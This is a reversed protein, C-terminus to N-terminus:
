DRDIGVRGVEEVRTLLISVLEHDRDDLGDIPLRLRGRDILGGVPEGLQDLGSISRIRAVSRSELGLEITARSPGRKTAQHGIPDSAGGTTGRGDNTM